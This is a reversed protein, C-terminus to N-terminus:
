LTSTAVELTVIILKLKGYTSHVGSGLRLHLIIGLRILVVVYINSLLKVNHRVISRNNLCWSHILKTKLLKLIGKYLDIKTVSIKRKTWYFHLLGLHVHWFHKQVSAVFILFFVTITISRLLNQVKELLLQIARALIIEWGWNVATGTISAKYSRTDKLFVFLITYFAVVKVTICKIENQNPTSGTVYM